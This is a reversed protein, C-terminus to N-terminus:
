HFDAAGHWIAALTTTLAGVAACRFLSSAARGDRINLCYLCYLCYPIIQISLVNAISDISLVNTGVNQLKKACSLVSLLFRAFCPQFM